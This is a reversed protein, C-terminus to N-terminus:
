GAVLNARIAHLVGRDTVERSVLQLSVRKTGAAFNVPANANSSEFVVDRVFVSSSSLYGSGTEWEGTPNGNSDVAEIAYPVSINTPIDDAFTQFGSVAGALTVAGTGTTTSTEMVRDRFSPM